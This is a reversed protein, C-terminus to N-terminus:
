MHKWDFLLVAESSHSSSSSCSTDSLSQLLFIFGDRASLLETLSAFGFSSDTETNPLM